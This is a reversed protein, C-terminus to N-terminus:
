RATPADPDPTFGKRYAHIVTDLTVRSGGVRIVGDDDETLPIPEAQLALSM